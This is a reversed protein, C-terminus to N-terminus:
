FRRHRDRSLSGTNISLPLETLYNLINVTSEQGKADQPFWQADKLAEQAAVVAYQMFGAM